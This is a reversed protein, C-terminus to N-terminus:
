PLSRDPAKPTESGHDDSNRNVVSTWDAPLDHRSPQWNTIESTDGFTWEELPRM